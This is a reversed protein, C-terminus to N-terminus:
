DNEFVNFQLITAQEQKCDYEDCNALKGVLRAPVPKAKQYGVASISMDKKMRSRYKYNGMEAEDFIFNYMAVSRKNSLEMNFRRARSTAQSTDHIDIYRGNYVPSTMGSIKLSQVHKAAEPNDYISKAYKPIVVRLFSKMDESLEHSGRVFYSEQFNLRVKGTKGDIEVASGDFESGFNKSLEDVIRNRAEVAEVFPSLEHEAKATMEKERGLLKAYMKETGAVAAKKEQDLSAKQDALAQKKKAELASQAAALEGQHQRQADSLAQANEAELASETMALAAVFQEQAEGLEAESQAELEQRQSEMDSAHSQGAQALAQEQAQTAQEQADALAASAEAESKALDERNKAESESKQKALDSQSKQKGAALARRKEDKAQEAQAQALQEFEQAAQQLKQQKEVELRAEQERM